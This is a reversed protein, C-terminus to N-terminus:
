YNGFITFVISEYGNSEVAEERCRAVQWFPQGCLNFVERGKRWNPGWQVFGMARTDRVEPKLRHEMELQEM